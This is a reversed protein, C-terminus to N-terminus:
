GGLVPPQGAADALLFAAIATPWEIRTITQYRSVSSQSSWSRPPSKKM